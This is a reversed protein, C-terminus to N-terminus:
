AIQRAERLYQRVEIVVIAIALPTGLYAFLLDGWGAHFGDAAASNIGIIAAVLACVAIAIRAEMNGSRFLGAAVIFPMAVFMLGFAGVSLAGLAAVAAVAACLGRIRTEEDDLDLDRLYSSIM